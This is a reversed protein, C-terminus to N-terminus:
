RARITPCCIRHLDYMIMGNRRSDYNMSREEESLRRREVDEDITSDSESAFPNILDVCTRIVKSNQEEFSEDIGRFVSLPQQDIFDRVIKKERM